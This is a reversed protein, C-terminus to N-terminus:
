SVEVKVKNKGTTSPGDDNKTENKRKEQAQKVKQVEGEVSERASDILVKFGKLFEEQANRSHDKFGQPVLAQLAKGTENVAAIQHDLFRQLPPRSDPATSETEPAPNTPQEDFM